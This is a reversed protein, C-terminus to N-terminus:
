QTGTPPDDDACRCASTLAGIPEGEVDVAIAGVAASTDLCRKPDDAGDDVGDLEVTHMHSCLPETPGPLVLSPAEPVVRSNYYVYLLKHLTTYSLRTRPLIQIHCATTLFSCKQCRAPTM